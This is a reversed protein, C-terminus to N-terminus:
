VWSFPLWSGSGAVSAVAVAATVAVVKAPPRRKAITALFQKLDDAPLFM